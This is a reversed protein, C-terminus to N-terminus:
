RRAPAGPPPPPAGQPAPAPPPPNLVAGTRFQEFLAAAEAEVPELVAAGRITRPVAPVTYTALGAGAFGRAAGALRLLDIPGLDEDATVASGAARAVTFLRPVNLLTAPDSVEEALESLFRQQRGIRGLDNDVKRARVFGVAQAGTLVNCGAPLDVGAFRDVLPADLYLSVGGVADVIRKFGLLNVEVYHHLPIGSAATVTQALCDPGGREAAGNIRGRSGDCLPVYLDRPFSLMAARGGAVSLVFITDARQGAVAETGLEQLEEPTLGERSDSGVILVNRPGGGPPLLGTVEVREMSASLVLLLAAGLAPVAVVALVLLLALPKALGRPWRRARRGTAPPGFDDAVATQDRRGTLVPAYGDRGDGRLVPGFGDDSM